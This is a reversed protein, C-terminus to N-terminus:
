KSSLDWDAPNNSWRKMDRLPDLGFLETHGDFAGIIARNNHRLDLNGYIRPSNVPDWTVSKKGYYIGQSLRIKGNHDYPSFVQYAGNLVPGTPVDNPNGSIHQPGYDRATAFLLYKDTLIVESARRIPNRNQLGSNNEYDDDAAKHRIYNIGTFNNMGFTTNWVMARDFSDTAGSNIKRELQRIESLRQQDNVLVDFAFDIYPAIRWGYPQANAYYVREHLDNYVPMPAPRPYDNHWVWHFEAVAPLLQGKNDTAYTHYATLLQQCVAMEKVTRAAERAQRLAPLLISVLLVIIAIVVLLEILTFARTSRSM